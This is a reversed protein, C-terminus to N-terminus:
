LRAEVYTGGERCRARRARVRELAGEIERAQVAESDVLGAEEDRHGAPRSAEARGYSRLLVELSAEMQRAERKLAEWDM